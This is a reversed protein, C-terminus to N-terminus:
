FALACLHYNTNYPTNTNKHKDLVIVIKFQSLFFTTPRTTKVSRSAFCFALISSGKKAGDVCEICVLAPPNCEYLLFCFPFWEAFYFQVSSFSYFRSSLVFRLFPFNLIVPCYLSFQVSAGFVSAYYLPFLIFCVRFVLVSYLCSFLLLQNVRSSSSHICCVFHCIYSSSNPRHWKPQKLLLFCASVFSHFTSRWETTNTIHQACPISSVNGNERSCQMACVSCEVNLTIVISFVTKFTTIENSGGHIMTQGREM